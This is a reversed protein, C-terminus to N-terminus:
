TGSSSRPERKAEASRGTTTRRKSSVDDMPPDQYGKQLANGHPPDANGGRYAAGRQDPEMPMNAARGRSKGHRPGTKWCRFSTDTVEQRFDRLPKTGSLPESAPYQTTTTAM